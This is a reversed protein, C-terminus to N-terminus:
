GDRCRRRDARSGGIVPGTPSIIAREGRRDADRVIVECADGPLAAVYFSALPYGRARGTRATVDVGHEGTVRVRQVRAPVSGFVFITGGIREWSAPEGCGAGYNRTGRFSLRFCAARQDEPAVPFGPPLLATLTWRRGAARGRRVVVRKMGAPLADLSPPASTAIVLARWREPPEERVSEALARLREDSPKGDVGLALTVGSPEIWRLERGYTQGDNTLPSFEAAQGRVTTQPAPAAPLRVTARRDDV